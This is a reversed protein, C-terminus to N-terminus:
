PTRSKEDDDNEIYLTVRSRYRHGRTVDPGRGPTLTEVVVSGSGSDGGTEQGHVGGFFIAKSWFCSLFFLFFTLGIRTHPLLLVQRSMM